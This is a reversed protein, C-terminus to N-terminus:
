SRDRELRDSEKKAGGGGPAKQLNKQWAAEDEWLIIEAVNDGKMQITAYTGDKGLDQLDKGKLGGTLPQKQGKDTMKFVKITDATVPVEIEKGFKKTTAEYPLFVIKNEAVKVVKGQKAQDKAGGREAISALSVGASLGLVIAACILKRIM